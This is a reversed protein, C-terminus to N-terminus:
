WPRWVVLMKSAAFRSSALSIRISTPPRGSLSPSLDPAPLDPQAM